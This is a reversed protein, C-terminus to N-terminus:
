GRVRRGGIPLMSLGRFLVFSRSRSVSDPEGSVVSSSCLRCLPDSGEKRKMVKRNKMSVLRLSSSAM